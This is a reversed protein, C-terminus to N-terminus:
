RLGDMLGGLVMKQVIAGTTVGAVNQAVGGFVSRRPQQVVYVPATGPQVAYVVPQKTGMMLQSMMAMPSPTAQTQVPAPASVVQTGNSACSPLALAIIALLSLYIKNKM